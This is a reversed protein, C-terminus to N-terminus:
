YCSSNTIVDVEGSEDATKGVMQSLAYTIIMSAFVGQKLLLGVCEDDTEEVHDVWAARRSGANYM